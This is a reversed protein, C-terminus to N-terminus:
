PTIPTTLRQPLVVKDGIAYLHCPGDQGQRTPDANCNSLALAEASRQNEASLVTFVRGWPHYAAAKPGQVNQYRAIDSRARVALSIGPIRDPNFTGAYRVREMDRGSSTTATPVAQLRDDIIVPACPNGHFIQCRELAGEEAADPTTWEGTRFNLSTGPVVALAKHEKLAEYKNALDERAAATLGPAALALTAILEASKANALKPAPPSGEVLFPGIVAVRCARDRTSCDEIAADM